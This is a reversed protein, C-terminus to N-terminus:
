LVRVRLKKLVLTIDLVLKIRVLRKHNLSYELTRRHNRMKACNLWEKVNSSASSGEELIEHVRDIEARLFVVRNELEQIQNASKAYAIDKEEIIIKMEELCTKLHIVQDESAKLQKAYDMSIGSTIDSLYEDKENLLNEANKLQGKLEVVQKESQKLLKAFEKRKKIEKDLYELAVVLEKECDIEGQADSGDDSTVEEIVEKQEVSKKHSSNRAMFIYQEKSSKNKGIKKESKMSDEDSSEDDSSSDESSSDDNEMSMLIKRRYKESKKLKSFKRNKDSFSKKEKKDDYDSTDDKKKKKCKAAFHGIGGCRFCILPLTGKFKGKGKKLGKSIYALFEKREDDSDYDEEDSM